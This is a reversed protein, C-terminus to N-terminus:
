ESVADWEQMVPETGSLLRKINEIHRLYILISILAACMALVKSNTVKWVAVPLM